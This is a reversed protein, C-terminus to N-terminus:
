NKFEFVVVCPETNEFKHSKIYEQAASALIPNGGLVRAERVSGGPGIQLALRVIGEIRMRRAVEPYAPRGLASKSKCPADQALLPATLLLAAVTLLCSRLNARVVGSQFVM